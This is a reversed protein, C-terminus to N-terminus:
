FFIQGLHGSLKNFSLAWVSSSLGGFSLQESEIHELFDIVFSLLICNSLQEFSFHKSDIQELLAFVFLLLLLSVSLQKFSLQGSLLDVLFTLIFSIRSRSSDVSSEDDDSDQSSESDETESDSGELLLLPNKSSDDDAKEDLDM